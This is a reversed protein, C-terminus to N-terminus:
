RQRPKAAAGGGAEPAWDAAHDRRVPLNPEGEWEPFHPVAAGFSDLVLRAGGRRRGPRGRGGGLGRRAAGRGGGRGGGGEPAEAGVGGVGARRRRGPRRRGRAWRALGRGRRRGPEGGVAGRRGRRARCRRGGPPGPGLARPGGGGAPGQGRGTGRARGGVDRAGGPRRGRGPRRGVRLVERGHGAGGAGGRSGAGRRGPSFCTRHATARPHPHVLTGFTVFAFPPRDSHGRAEAGVGAAAGAAAPTM